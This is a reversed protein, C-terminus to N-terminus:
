IAHPQEKSITQSPPAETLSYNTKGDVKLLLVPLLLFDAVVAVAISIATLIAMNSNLGFASQALVLFGTCLIVSTVVIAVGVTSFAYHIAQEASMGQERRARLYKSLFHITDDVVIGLAMGTVMSVAMNVEGVLIGWIGFALGAPLLNPILSLLGIKLSRLAFIILFSILVLAVMTGIIMGNINRETVNAFMVAPGVGITNLATNEKLWVRGRESVEKLQASGMDELTVILQTSSKSIDLQNNLDLGYPLSLEYLLLYQAALEPDDPIRYYSPDDGHMNKNLRKFTDTITNVHIVEPQERLWTSFREVKNLFSPDSVGNNTESDLSYQVQYTGTLNQNIYDSDTRFTISEDFYSLFNDDLVNKPIFSLLVASVLISGLLIPKQQRIVFRSLGNMNKAFTNESQKVKVPLVSMLAPLLTLSFILAAMVGMATINGMDHFPPMDSFNMSLFGIATTVSTLLVPSFNIRVSERIAENKELGSRMGSMITMLIHISDAVALTMIITMSAISPPTLQIGAYGALGMGTMISFLIILFTSATASVSRVMVFTILLIILYMLPVLTAMDSMSAEFFANSLMVFGALRVEVDYKAEIDAKLARASAVAQPIEDLSKEPMQFTVNVGSVTSDRDILLAQLFPEQSAALQAEKIETPTYQRDSAILDGVVLDDELAKTHQFNTLSDVRLSFPLQWAKDTLEQIAAISDASYVDGSGPTIAFLVNDIKTYTRQVKDFEILQPNDESFFIRYDNNPTLFRGGSGALLALLLASIIMLWRYRILLDAYRQSWGSKRLRSM